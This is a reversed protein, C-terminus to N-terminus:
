RDQEPRVPPAAATLAKVAFMAATEINTVALNKCRARESREDAPIQSDLFDIFGAAIEKCRDVISEGSPNHAARVMQEGRSQERVPVEKPNQPAAMM